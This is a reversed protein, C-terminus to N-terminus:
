RNAVLAVEGVSLLRKPPAGVRGALQALKKEEVFVLLRAPSHDWLEAFKDFGLVAEGAGRAPRPKKEAMYFSGMVAGRREPLVMWIPEKVRLYFPLSSRYDNYVVLQDEPRVLPLAKAALEESSRTRSIHGMIGLGFLHFVLFFACSVFYYPAPMARLSAGAGALLLVLLAPVWPWFIQRIFLMVEPPSERLAAPLLGPLFLALSFYGFAALLVLWPVMLPLRTRYSSSELARAIADGTLIALPPFVPLIYGPQKALSFSFFLVPLAAWLLLFLRGDDKAAAAIGKFPLYILASWPFFGVALVLAYYHWPQGRNFHPTLYRLFNEEFLFYKLYGPNRAEAWLYWPAAIVLFIAPGLAPEMAGLMSWRRTVLLYFAIVMGPIVIGIPGKMLTAAAMAVWMLLFFLRKRTGRAAEGRRFSWLALTIFFALPMDFITARSFAMVAPSTLLVLGSWPGARPGMSTRALHYALLVSGLAALAAPLRASLESVGFLRYAGAVLWFFAIPKDLYPIFDYHPTVWDGLALVERAVEANRGEDPEMLAPAGLGHFLVFWCLVAFAGAWLIEGGGRAQAPIKSPERM